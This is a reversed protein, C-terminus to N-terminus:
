VRSSNIHELSVLHGKRNTRFYENGCTRCKVLETKKQHYWERRKRNIEEANSERYRYVAEKAKEKNEEYYKKKYESRRENIPKEVRKLEEKIEKVKQKAEQKLTLYKDKIKAVIKPTDIVENYVKERYKLLKKRDEAKNVKEFEGIEETYISDRSVQLFFELNESGKKASSFLKTLRRGIPESTADVYVKVKGEPTMGYIKYVKVM